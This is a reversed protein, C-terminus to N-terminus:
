FSRCLIDNQSKKNLEELIRIESSHSLFQEVIVTTICINHDKEPVTIEYKSKRMNQCYENYYEAIKIQM